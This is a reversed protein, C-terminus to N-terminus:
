FKWRPPRECANVIIKKEFGYTANQCPSWPSLSFTESIALFFVHPRGKQCQSWPSLVFTSFIECPHGKTVLETKENEWILIHSKPVSKVSKSFLHWFNNVFFVTPAAKPMSKVSKLYFNLFKVQTTKWLCYLIDKEWISVHSKSVSKVSKSFFNWFNNFFFGTTAAKPMSKVSKLYFNLFNWRPPRECATFFIKIRVDIHPM